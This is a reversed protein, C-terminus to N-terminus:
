GLLTVVLPGVGAVALVAWLRRSRDFVLRATGGVMPSVPVVLDFLALMVVARQADALPFWGPADPLLVLTWACGAIVLGAALHARALRPLERDYRWPRGDPVSSGTLPFWVGGVAALPLAVGIGNVWPVHGLDLGQARATLRLVAERLGLTGVVLAVVGLLGAPDPGLERPARLTVVALLLVNLTVTGLWRSATAPPAADPGPDAWLRLGPDFVAHARWWVAPLRWGWRRVQERVPLPRYGGRRHLEQSATNVPEIRALRQTCAQDTFWATAADRLASGVGPVAARPDAFVWDVVGIRHEGVDVARLVTGGLVTGAGDTAVLAHGDTSFALQDFRPFARAVVARLADHDDETATRVHVTTTM